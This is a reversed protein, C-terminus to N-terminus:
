QCRQRNRRQTSQARQPLNTENLAAQVFSHVVPSVSIKARGEAAVLYSSKEPRTRRRDTPKPQDIGEAELEFLRPVGRDDDGDTRYALPRSRRSPSRPEGFNNPVTSSPTLLPASPGPQVVHVHKDLLVTNALGEATAKADAERGALQLCIRLCLRFPRGGRDLRASTKGSITQKRYWQNSPNACFFRFNLTQLVSNAEAAHSNHSDTRSFRCDLRSIHRLFPFETLTTRRM